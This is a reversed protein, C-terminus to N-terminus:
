AQRCECLPETAHEDLEITRRRADGLGGPQAPWPFGQPILVADIRSAGSFEAPEGGTVLTKAVLTEPARYLAQCLWLPPPRMIKAPLAGSRASYFEASFHREHATHDVFIRWPTAREWCHTM